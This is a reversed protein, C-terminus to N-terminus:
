ANDSRFHPALIVIATLTTEGEELRQLIAPHTRAARAAQIRKYAAQESYGLIRTCYAFLSPQGRDAYLRRRDFEGLHAMLFALAKREIRALRRLRDELEADPLHGVAPPFWTPELAGKLNAADMGGLVSLDEFLERDPM